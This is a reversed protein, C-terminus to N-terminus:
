YREVDPDVQLAWADIGGKLNHVNTFGLRQLYQTAQASRGGTHCQLVIEADKDLGQAWQGIQPLPKLQAGEIRCFAFEDEDRVDILLPPNDSKLKTELDRVSIEPLM